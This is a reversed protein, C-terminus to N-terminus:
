NEDIIDVEDWSGDPEIRITKIEFPKFALSIRRGPAFVKLVARTKFGASEQLRV